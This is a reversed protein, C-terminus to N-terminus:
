VINLYNLYDASHVINDIIVEERHAIDLGVKVILSKYHILFINKFHSLLQLFQSM